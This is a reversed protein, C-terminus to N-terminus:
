KTYREGYNYYAYYKQEEPFFVLVMMSEAFGTSEYVDVKRGDTINGNKIGSEDGTVTFSGIIVGVDNREEQSSLYLAGDFLLFQYREAANVGEEYLQTVPEITREGSESGEETVRENIRKQNIVIGASVLIILAIVVVIMKRLKRNQPNKTYIDLAELVDQDDVDTMASFLDLPEIM